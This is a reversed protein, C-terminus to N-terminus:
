QLRGRAISGAVIRFLQPLDESKRVPFYHDCTGTTSSSIDRLLKDTDSTASSAAPWARGDLCPRSAQATYVLKSSCWGNPSSGNSCYFGVVYIEVGAAKLATAANRTTTDWNGLSPSYNTPIGLQSSENVGDTMLVLIKRAVGTTAPDTRGNPSTGTTTANWAGAPANWANTLGSIGAAIKTGTAMCWSSGTNCDEPDGTWASKSSDNNDNSDTYNDRLGTAAVPTGSATPTGYVVPVRQYKPSAIPCGMGVAGAPCSVTGAPAADNRAVKVLAQKNMTLSIMVNVDDDCPTVYESGNPGRDLDIFLNGNGHSTGSGSTGRDWRCKIGAFRAIGVQTGRPDASDVRMQDIFAVVADQLQGLDNTGSREMSGSTDLSLMVDAMGGGAAATALQNLTTTQIGIVRWFRTPMVVTGNIRMMDNYATGDSSLPTFTFSAGNIGNTYGNLALFNVAATQGDANRADQNGGSSTVLARAGALSAADIAHQLKSSEVVILGYDVGTGALGMLSALLMAMYIAVQGKGHRASLTGWATRWREINDILRKRM